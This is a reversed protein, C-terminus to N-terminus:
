PEIWDCASATGRAVVGRGVSGVFRQKEHFIPSHQRWRAKAFVLFLFKRNTASTSASSRFVSSILSNETYHTLYILRIEQNERTWLINFFSFFFFVIALAIQHVSNRSSGNISILLYETFKYKSYFAEDPAM